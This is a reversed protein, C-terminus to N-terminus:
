ISSSSLPNNSNNTNPNNIINSNNNIINNNNGILNNGHVNVNVNVNNGHISNQVNSGGGNYGNGDVLGYLYALHHNTQQLSNYPNNNLSYSNSNMNSNNNIMSNNNKNYINLPNLNYQHQYKLSNMKQATPSSPIIFSNPAPPQKHSNKSLPQPQQQM